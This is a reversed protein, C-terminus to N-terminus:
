KSEKAKIQKQLMQEIRDLRKTQDSQIYIESGLLLTVIVIILWLTVRIRGMADERSEPQVFFDLAILLCSAVGAICM